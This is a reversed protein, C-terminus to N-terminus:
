FGVSVRAGFEVSVVTEVPIAVDGRENGATDEDPAEYRWRILDLFVSARVRSWAGELGTGALLVMDDASWDFARVENDPAFEGQQDLSIRGIGLSATPGIGNWRTFQPWWRFSFLDTTVDFTPVTIPQGTRPNLDGTSLENGNIAFVLDTNRGSRTWGFQLEPHLDFALRVRWQGSTGLEMRREEAQGPVPSTQFRLFDSLPSADVVAGGVEVRPVYWRASAPTSALVTLAATTLLGRRISPLLNM